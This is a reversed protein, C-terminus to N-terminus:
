AITSGRKGGAPVLIKQVQDINWARPARVIVVDSEVRSMLEELPGTMLEKGLHGFGLVLSECHFRNAVREIERWPNWRILTM